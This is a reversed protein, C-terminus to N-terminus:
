TSKLVFPRTESPAVSHNRMLNQRKSSAAGSAWSVSPARLQDLNAGAIHILCDLQFKSLVQFQDWFRRNWTCDTADNVFRQFQELSTTRLTYSYRCNLSTSRSEDDNLMREFLEEGHLMLSENSEILMVHFFSRDPRVKSFVESVMHLAEEKTEQGLLDLLQSETNGQADILMAALTFSLTTPSFLVNKIEPGDNLSEKAKYYKIALSM